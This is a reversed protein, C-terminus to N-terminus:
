KVLPAGFTFDELEIVKKWLEKCDCDLNKFVATDQTVSFIRIAEAVDDDCKGCNHPGRMSGAAVPDSMIVTEPSLEKGVRLAEVASWLWPPRYDGREFMEDVLTGKQVNCLNMSITGAFPSADKISNIMDNMAIGESLFPPKQMLYAKVTVGNKGAVESARTFDSFSFGKNICDKRIVDNSTELGIAVEFKKGLAACAESLKEDTVYEPRTEAIVKKVRDNEKLRSLMETRTSSGIESDDLFSGSTFIKVIFEEDKCRSMAHEFQKMLDYHSPPSRASDYVYGCMTCNNWRCGSTQFIITLATIPKGDLLDKGTWVATPRDPPNFKIKQKARIDRIVKTLSM